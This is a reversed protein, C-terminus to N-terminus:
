DFSTSPEHISKYRNFVLQAGQACADVERKILNNEHGLQSILEPKSFSNKNIADLVMNFFFEKKKNTFHEPLDSFVDHLDNYNSDDLPPHITRKGRTKSQAKGSKSAGKSSFSGRNDTEAGGRGRKVVKTFSNSPEDAYERGAAEPRGQSAVATHDGTDGTTESADAWSFSERPKFRSTSTTTTATNTPVEKKTETETGQVILFLRLVDAQLAKFNVETTNELKVLRGLLDSQKTTNKAIADKLPLTGRNFRTGFDRQSDTLSKEFATLRDGFDDKFELVAHLV